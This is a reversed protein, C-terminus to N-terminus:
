APYTEVFLTPPIAGGSQSHFAYVYTGTLLLVYWSNHSGVDVM